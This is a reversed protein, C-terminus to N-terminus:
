WGKGNEFAAMAADYDSHWAILEDFEKAREADSMDEYRDCGSCSGYSWRLTGWQDGRRLLIVGWGEWDSVGDRKVAVAGAREVASEAEDEWRM